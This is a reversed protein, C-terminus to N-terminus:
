EERVELLLGRSRITTIRVSTDPKLHGRLRYVIVDMSRRNFYDDRGWLTQVADGREILKGPQTALLALLEGERPTLQTVRDGLHLRGTSTDLKCRGFSRSEVNPDSESRLSRRVIARLRAVLEEEDVPKTVYDDAGVHFGKLRHLRDSLATLFLIPLDTDARLRTAVDFGDMSPLMVDLVCADFPCETAASLAGPGDVVLTVEFGHLQLYARLSPGLDEDDEVLLLRTPEPM